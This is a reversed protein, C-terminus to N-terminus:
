LRTACYIYLGERIRIQTLAVLGAASMEAAEDRYKRYIAQDETEPQLCLGCDSSLDGVHYVVRDRKAAQRVVWAAMSVPGAFPQRWKLWDRILDVSDPLSARDIAAYDTV